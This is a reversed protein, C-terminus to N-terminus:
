CFLFRGYFHKSTYRSFLRQICSPGRTKRGKECHVLQWGPLLPRLHQPPHHPQHRGGQHAPEDGGAGGGGAGGGGHGGGEEEKESM